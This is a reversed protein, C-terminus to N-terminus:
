MPIEIIPIARLLESNESLNSALESRERKRKKMIEGSM